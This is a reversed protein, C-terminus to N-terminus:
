IRRRRESVFGFAALAGLAAALLGFRPLPPIDSFGTSPLRVGSGASPAVHRPPSYHPKPSHKPGRDTHRILGFDYGSNIGGAVPVVYKSPTTIFWESGPEIFLDYVGPGLAEFNFVGTGDTRHVLELGGGRLKVDVDNLGPEGAQFMGDENNDVFVIGKISGLQDTEFRPDPRKDDGEDSRGGSGGGGGGPRATARPPVPTPDGPRVTAPPMATPDVVGECGQYFRFDERTNGLSFDTFRLTRTPSDDFCLQWGSPDGVLALTYSEDDALDPVEFTVRQFGALPTTTGRGVEAGGDDTVVFEMTTLPTTMAFNEDEDDYEGNCAPCDPDSGGAVDVFGVALITLTDQAAPAAQVAPPTAAGLAATALLLAGLALSIRKAITQM